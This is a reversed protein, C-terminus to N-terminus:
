QGRVGHGLHRDLGGRRRASDWALRQPWTTVRGPPYRRAGLRDRGVVEAPGAVRPLAVPHGLAVAALGPRWSGDGPLFLRYGVRRGPRHGARGPRGGGTRAAALDALRAAAAGGRGPRAPRSMARRALAAQHRHVVGDAREGRAAPGGRAPRGAGQGAPLPRPRPRMDNWLLAPRIVRGAEDLVIMGHQQGAVGVAAARHAAGRRSAPAGGVLRGPDCEPWRPAARQRSRGGHRRRGPM